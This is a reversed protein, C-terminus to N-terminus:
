RLQFNVTVTSDMDIPEGNLLYPSFRWQKVAATAADTFGPDTSALPVVSQVSGDKAMVFRLFVIGSLHATKAGIPYPPQVFKIRKGAILGPIYGAAGVQSAAEVVPASLKVESTAPDFGHLATVKGTVASKGMLSIQLALAVETGHFKGMSNRLIEVIHSNQLALRLNDTNPDTCYTDDSSLGEPLLGQLYTVCTLSVEGMTRTEQKTEGIRQGVGVPHVAASELESVLYANRLLAPNAGPPASGDENLGPLHVVLRSSGPGAWWREFSGADSPKGNMDFLQFSATLYFPINGKRELNNAAILKGLQGDDSAQGGTPLQARLPPVALVAWVSVM